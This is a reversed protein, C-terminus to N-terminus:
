KETAFILGNDKRMKETSRLVARSIQEQIGVAKIDKKEIWDAYVDAEEQLNQEAKEQALEETNKRKADLFKVSDIDTVANIVLTGKEGYVESPATSTYIKSANVSVGFTDYELLIVGGGDAGTAIIVPKYICKQPEGFLAVAAAIPYVGLDALSGGSYELSFINPVEGDLVKNYRSSYSAYNLSAGYIPGLRALNSQLVRFNVEHIHRFAEILFVDNEKALTFLSDLEASNSALPKELIVHKKARLLISAQSFHLSNPSAIYVVRIDSDAGLSELSTYTTSVNYKSAFETATAQKRSFVAALQWKKTNHAGAIFSETIWGTGVVGFNIM